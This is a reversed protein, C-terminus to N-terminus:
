YSGFALREGTPAAHDHKVRVAELRWLEVLFEAIADYTHYLVVRMTVLLHEQFLLQSLPLFIVLHNLSRGM